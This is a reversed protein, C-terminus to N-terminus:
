QPPPPVNQLRIFPLSCPFLGPPALVRYEICTNQQWHVLEPVSAPHPPEKPLELHHGELYMGFARKWFTSGAAAAPLGAEQALSLVSDIPPPQYAANNTVGNVEPWAGTVMVARNPNSLSPAAAEVVSSAGRRALTQLSEMNKSVDLTIGDIVLLVARQALPEGAPLRERFAYPSQYSTVSHWSREALYGSAVAAVFLLAL